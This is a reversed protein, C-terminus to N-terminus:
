PKMLATVKKHCDKCLLAINNNTRYDKYRKHMGIGSKNYIPIIHHFHLNTNDKCLRCENGHKELLKLRQQKCWITCKSKPGIKKGLMQEPISLTVTNASEEM